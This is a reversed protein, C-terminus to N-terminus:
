QGALLKRVQEKTMDGSMQGYVFSVRQEFREQPSMRYNRAAEVMRDLLAPDTAPYNGPGVDFM